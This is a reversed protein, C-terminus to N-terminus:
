KTPDNKDNEADEAEQLLDSAQEASPNEVAQIFIEEPIVVPAKARFAVDLAVATNVEEIVEKKNILFHLKTHFQNDSLDYIVAKKVKISAYLILKQLLNFANIPIDEKGLVADLM